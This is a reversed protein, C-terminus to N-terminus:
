VEIRRWGGHSFRYVVLAARVHLDVAMAYWAGVVGLGWGTITIGLVPIYIEPLALWYAGPIRVGLLGVLSFILPWRTDGAGRLAGTIILVMALAPQAISVTRLLPVAQRAVDIQEARVFLRALPEALTFMLVGVSGMLGIGVLCALVVSRNARHYDRAGLYQGTMTTAAAQFAAGPLFGLSEVCLAVGHAATAVDGLRAIVSVFWLHCGIMSLMDAGGPIGIRLLRRILVGDPRMWRWRLRLGSRGRVLLGLVLLGGVGHGVMTGAAIGSWGMCPFPGVGLVLVWSVLVNVVNVISMVWLGAVMDGAGRLCAIGVSSLMIMPIIPLMYNLYIEALRASEGRLQLWRILQDGEAWAMLTVAIALGAGVTVAQNTVRRALRRDHAGVFRAVMATAGIGVVAFMGVVLWMLYAMLTVAAQHATELYHGTLVRDSFWVLIGLAQEALVPLALRLM